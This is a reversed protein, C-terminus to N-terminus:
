GAFREPIANSRPLRAPKGYARPAAAPKTEGPVKSAKAARPAAPKRAAKGAAPAAAEAASSVAAPKTAAKKVPTAEIPHSHLIGDTFLQGNMQGYIRFQLTGM